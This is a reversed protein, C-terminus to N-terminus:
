GDRETDIPIFEEFSTPETHTFVVSKADRYNKIISDKDEGRNALYVVQSTGDVFYGTVGDKVGEYARRYDEQADTYYPLNLCGKFMKGSDGKVYTWDTGKPVIISSLASCGDFMSTLVANEQVIFKEGLKVEVLATCGADCM